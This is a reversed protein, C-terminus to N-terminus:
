LNLSESQTSIVFKWQDTIAHQESKHERVELVSVLKRIWQECKFPEIPFVNPM